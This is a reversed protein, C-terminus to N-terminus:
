LILCTINWWPACYSFTLSPTLLSDDFGMNVIFIFVHYFSEVV